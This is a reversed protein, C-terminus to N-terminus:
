VHARGIEEATFSLMLVASPDLGREKILFAIRSALTTTKGCGPGAAIALPGDGASIAQLQAPSFGAPSM